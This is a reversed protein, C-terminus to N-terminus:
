QNTAVLGVIFIMYAAFCCIGLVILAIQIYGMIIGATAMGDGAAMPPSSRTEKRAMYGCVVAVISGIGPIAVFGLIGSILSILAMTSTPLATPPVSYPANPENM